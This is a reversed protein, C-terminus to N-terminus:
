NRPTLKRPSTRYLVGAKNLLTLYHYPSGREQKRRAVYTKAGHFVLGVCIGAFTTMLPSASDPGVANAVAAPASLTAPLTLKTVLKEFFDKGPEAADIGLFEKWYNQMNNRDSNWAKLIDLTEDFFQEARRKGPDMAPMRAARDNLAQMLKRIPERDAGMKSLVEADLENTDCAFCVFSDFLERGDPQLPEALTKKKPQIWADYVDEQRVQTLCEHLPGSRRDGVISLGDAKACAIAITSMVAEGISPHMEIYDLNKAYPEHYRGDWALGTDGLVSKLEGALKMQHIQFGPEDPLQLKEAADRGFREVFGPKAADKRLRRALERQADVARQGWIGASGLLPRRQDGYTRTFTEIEADDDAQKGFIPAMRQVETFLLLTAKLWAVDRIHIYPYYLAQESM